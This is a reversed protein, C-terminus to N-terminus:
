AKLGILTWSICTVIAHWLLATMHSVGQCYFYNITILANHPNKQINFRFHFFRRPFAIKIECLEVTSIYLYAYVNSLLFEFANRKHNAQIM